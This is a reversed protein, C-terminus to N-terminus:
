GFCAGAVCSLPSACDYVNVCPSGVGGDVSSAPKVVAHADGEEPDSADAPVPGQGSIPTSSCALLASAFAM